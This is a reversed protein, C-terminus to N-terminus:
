FYKRKHFNRPPCNGSQVGKTAPRSHLFPVSFVTLGTGSFVIIARYMTERKWTYRNSWSQTQLLSLALSRRCLYNRLLSKEQYGQCRFLQETFPTVPRDLPINHAPVVMFHTFNFLVMELILVWACSWPGCKPKLWLPGNSFNAVAKGM